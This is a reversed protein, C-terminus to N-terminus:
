PFLQVGWRTWDKNLIALSFSVYCQGCVSWASPLLIFYKYFWRSTAYYKSFLCFWVVFFVCIWRLFSTVYQLHWLGHCARIYSVTSSIYCLWLASQWLKSPVFMTFFTKARLPTFRRCGIVYKIFSSKCPVCADFLCAQPKLHCLRPLESESGHAHINIIFDTVVVYYFFVWNQNKVPHRFLSYSLWVEWFQKSAGSTANKPIWNAKCVLQCHTTRQTM